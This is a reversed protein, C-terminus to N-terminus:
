RYFLKNFALTNGAQADKILRIEEQTIKPNKM